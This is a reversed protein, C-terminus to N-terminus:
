PLTLGALTLAKKLHEIKEASLPVIPSRNPGAPRGLLKMAEKVAGNGTALTLALRVHALREQFQKAQEWHGAAAARYIGLCLEPAVNGTAPIAGNAGFMMAAAILTDRGNLVAFRDRPTRKILEITNQLDGSSDKIGIFQPSEALRAVTDPEISV